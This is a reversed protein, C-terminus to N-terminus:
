RLSTRLKQLLFGIRQIRDDFDNLKDDSIYRLDKTLLSQYHLEELSGISIDIFHVKEKPSRRGNAEALNMPISYASRRM